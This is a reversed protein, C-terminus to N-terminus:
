PSGSRSRRRSRAATLQVEEVELSSKAGESRRGRGNKAPLAEELEDLVGATSRAGKERIADRRRM